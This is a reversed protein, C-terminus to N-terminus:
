FGHLYYIKHHHGEIFAVWMEKVFSLFSDKCGEKIKAREYESLLELLMKQQEIPLQSLKSLDFLPPVEDETSFYVHTYPTHIVLCLAM